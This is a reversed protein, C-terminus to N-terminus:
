ARAAMRERRRRTSRRCEVRRRFPGPLFSEPWITLRRLLGRAVQRPYEPSESAVEVFLRSAGARNRHLEWTESTLMSLRESSLWGVSLLAALEKRASYNRRALALMLRTARSSPERTTM